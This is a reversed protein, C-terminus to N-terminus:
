LYVTDGGHPAAPMDGRARPGSLNSLTRPFEFHPFARRGPGASLLGTSANM